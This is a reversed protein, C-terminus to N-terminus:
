RSNNRRSDDAANSLAPEGIRSFNRSEPLRIVMFDGNDQGSLYMLVGSLDTFPVMGQDDLGINALAMSDPTPSSAASRTGMYAFFMAFIIVAAAAAAVAPRPLTITRYRFPLSPTRSKKSVFMVREDEAAPVPMKSWVRDQAAQITEAPASAARLSENLNRYGAFGAQCKPCSELHSEMKEKWPSPLEGDLYLSIIERDPCM